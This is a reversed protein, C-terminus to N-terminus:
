NPGPQIALWLMVGTIMGLVFVLLVTISDKVGQGNKQGRHIGAHHGAGPSRERPANTRAGGARLQQDPLQAGHARRASRGRHDAGAKVKEGSQRSFQGGAFELLLFRATRENGIISVTVGIPALLKSSIAMAATLASPSLTSADALCALGQDLM